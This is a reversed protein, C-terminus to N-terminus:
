DINAIVIIASAGIKGRARVTITNNTGPRMAASIDLKRMEGPRLYVEKFLRGNVILQVERMGKLQVKGMGLDGNRITVKSEAQMIGTFTADKPQKDVRSVIHIIPDCIAQNGAVDFIDVDVGMGRSNTSTATVFVPATTPAVFSDITVKANYSNVVEFRQLGSGTDEARFRVYLRGLANRGQAVFVCIPPTTDVIKFPECAGTSPENTSDGSYDASYAYSGVALTQSSSEIGVAVTQDTSAGSCSGNGLAFFHYTITGSPSNGTVIASDHVAKGADVSGNTVDAHGPDHVQTVITTVWLVIKFPECAGTSGLNNNDGSYDASYAYSGVALTQPSSESGVAVTEDTSPGSCSGQGTAFFHYTITGTPSSGTVTASDHVATGALVAGNTVDTHGPNHVQTVITTASRGPPTGSCTLENITNSDLTVAGNRALLRGAVAAGTNLGISTLALITGNFTTTTGLTASSGVQWFVNCPSAGNVLKVNSASATILTSAAQFIFVAGSNGQADLTLTGTLDLAGGSYVGATLTLGGLTDGSVTTAPTRGAADNYAIVLDSQAQVAAANAVNQVGGSVLGPPFGTVSTGPSLGLNGSVTTPGTNTVTTGALVAYSATTGLSVPAQAALAGSAFALLVISLVAVAGLTAAAGGVLRRRRPVRKGKRIEM